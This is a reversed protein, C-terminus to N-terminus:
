LVMEAQTKLAQYDDKVKKDLVNVKDFIKDLAEQTDKSSTETVMFDVAFTKLHANRHDPFSYYDVYQCLAKLSKIFEEEATKLNKITFEGEIQTIYNKYDEYREALFYRENIRNEWLNLIEEDIKSKLKKYREADQHQQGKFSIKKQWKKIYFCCVGIIVAFLGIEIWYDMM